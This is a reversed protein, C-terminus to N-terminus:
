QAKFTLINSEQEETHCDIEPKQRTLNLVQASEPQSMEGYYIISSTRSTVSASSFAQIRYPQISDRTICFREQRFNLLVFVNPDLAPMKAM